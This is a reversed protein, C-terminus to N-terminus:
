LELRDLQWTDECQGTQWCSSSLCVQFATTPVGVGVGDDVGAAELYELPAVQTQPALIRLASNLM